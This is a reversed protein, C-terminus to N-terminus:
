AAAEPGFPMAETFKQEMETREHGLACYPPETFSVRAAADKEGLAVQAGCKPCEWVEQWENV